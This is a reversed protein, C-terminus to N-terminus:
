KCCVAMCHDTIVVKMIGEVIVIGRGGEVPIRRWAEQKENVDRFTVVNDGNELSDLAIAAAIARETVDNCLGGCQGWSNVYEEKGAISKM